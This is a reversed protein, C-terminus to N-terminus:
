SKEGVIQLAQNYLTNSIRFRAENRALDLVDKLSDILEMKKALILIGLSGIVELGRNQAIKRGKQEDILLYEANILEALYIAESEGDDLTDRLNNLISDSEVQQIEIWDAEQIMSIDQGLESFEQLEKFVAQPIIIKGYIIKLIELKGIVLFLSLPSNDSVVIM